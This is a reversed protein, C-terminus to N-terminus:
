PRQKPMLHTHDAHSIAVVPVNLEQALQKLKQSVSRIKGTANPSKNGCFVPSDDKVHQICDVIVLGLPVGKHSSESAVRRAEACLTNINLNMREELIVIPLRDVRKSAERFTPMKGDTILQPNSVHKPDIITAFYPPLNAAVHSVMNGIIQKASMESSVFFVTRPVPTFDSKGQSATHIAIFIALPTEAGSRGGILILDKPRLGLLADDLKRIGTPIGKLKQNKM